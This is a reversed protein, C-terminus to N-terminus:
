NVIEENQEWRMVLGQPMMGVPLREVKPPEIKNMGVMWSPRPLPKFESKKLADNYQYAIESLSWQWEKDLQEDILIEQIYAIADNFYLNETNELTWGYKSM